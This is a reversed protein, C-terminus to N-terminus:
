QGVLAGQVKTSNASWQFCGLFRTGNLPISVVQGATITAANYPQFPTGQCDQISFTHSASDTNVITIQQVTISRSTVRGAEECNPSTLSAPLGQGPVHCATRFDYTGSQASAPRPSMWSLIGCAVVLLSLITLNRRTM